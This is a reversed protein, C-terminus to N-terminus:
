LSVEDNSWELLLWGEMGRYSAVIWGGWMWRGASISTHWRKLPM